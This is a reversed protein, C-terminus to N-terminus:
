RASKLARLFNLAADSPATTRRDAGGKPPRPEARLESVRGENQQASQPQQESMAELFRAAPKDRNETTKVVGRASKIGSEMRDALSVGRELLFSLDDRLLKGHEFQRNLEVATTQSAERLAVMSAQAQATAATFNGLLAQMEDRSQRVTRLRRDLIAAYVITAILLCALLGDLLLSAM